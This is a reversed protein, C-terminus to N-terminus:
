DRFPRFVTAFRDYFLLFQHFTAGVAAQAGANGILNMITKADFCYLDTYLLVYATYLVIFINFRM